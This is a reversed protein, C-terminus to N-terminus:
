ASGTLIFSPAHIPPPAIIRGPIVITFFLTMPAPLITVWEIGSLQTATPFGQLTILCISLSTTQCFRDCHIM